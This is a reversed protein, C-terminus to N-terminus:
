SLPLHDYLHNLKYESKLLPKVEDISVNIKVGPNIIDYPDFILKIKKFLNFVDDPYLKDLFPGRLRGENYQASTSGGLEKVKQQFNDLMRFAKQRDGVQSLNLSPMLHLNGDGAHGWIAVELHEQEFLRYIYRIFEALKEVPVIGDDILPVPSSQGQPHSALLAASDRIKWIIKQKEQDEEVVVSEALKNLIKDVAKTAKKLKHDSEALLEILLIFKPFPPKIVDNIYNPNLKYVHELLKCDVLEVASPMNDGLNRMEMIAQQLNNVSDFYAVVLIPGQAIPVTELTVETIVGLTGQSGVFLPTLDFSGDELKVDVLDFGATNKSVNLISKTVIEKNDELLADISRYIEGEFTALGLKRNLEKKSLRSVEIVEGNALVVRLSRVFSRADGYKFSRVGSANNAIAGGITSYEASAPAFPLFQGYTALLQSLKGFNIGPEVTVLSEKADFYLVHNMHSPFVIIIGKGIAAGTLDTGSGRCTIPIFRDREALQWVFKTTKRIDNENKPYMIVSPALSFISNDSSFYKRAENNTMVEGVVHEQLYHAIKNM